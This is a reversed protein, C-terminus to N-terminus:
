TDDDDESLFDDENSSFLKKPGKLKQAKKFEEVQEAIRDADLEGPAPTRRQKKVIRPGFGPKRGVIVGYFDVNFEPDETVTWKLAGCVRLNETYGVYWSWIKNDKAILDEGGLWEDCVVNRAFWYAWEPTPEAVTQNHDAKIQPHSQYLLWAADVSTNSNAVRGYNHTM